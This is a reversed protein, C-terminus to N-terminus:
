EDTLLWAKVMTDLEVEGANPHQSRLAVRKLHVGVAFLEFAQALKEEPTFSEAILVDSAFLLDM